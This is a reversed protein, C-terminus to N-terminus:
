STCYTVKGWSNETRIDQRPLRWEVIYGIGWGNQDEPPLPKLLLYYSIFVTSNYVVDHSSSYPKKQLAFHYNPSVTCILM